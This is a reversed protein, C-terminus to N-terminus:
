EDRLAEALPMAPFVDIASRPTANVVQCMRLLAPALERWAPLFQSRYAEVDQQRYDAHGHTEGDVERCEFGVLVIKRAGMRALLCAGSHGSSALAHDPMRGIWQALGAVDVYRVAEGLRAKAHRNCTMVPGPWRAALEPRRENWGNDSFWLVDDPTAAPYVRRCASNVAMFRRGALLHPDIDAHSPGGGVLVVTLGALLPEPEWFPTPTPASDIVIHRPGAYRM